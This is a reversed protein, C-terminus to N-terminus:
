LVRLMHCNTCPCRRIFDHDLDNQVSELMSPANRAVYDRYDQDDYVDHYDPVSTPRQRIDSHGSPREQMSVPRASKVYNSDEFTIKNYVDQMALHEPTTQRYQVGSDQITTREQLSLPREQLSMPGEHGSTLGRYIDQMPVHDPEIVPRETYNERLERMSGPRGQIQRHDQPALYSFGHELLTVEM